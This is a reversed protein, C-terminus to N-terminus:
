PLLEMNKLRSISLHIKTQKLRFVGVDEHEAMMQWHVV